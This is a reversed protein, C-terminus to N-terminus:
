RQHYNFKNEENYYEGENDSNIKYRLPFTKDYNEKNDNITRKVEKEVEDSNLGYFKTYLVRIADEYNQLTIRNNNKSIVYDKIDTIINSIDEKTLSTLSIYPKFDSLASYKDQLKNFYNNDIEKIKAVLDSIFKMEITEDYSTYISKNDIMKNMYYNVRDYFEQTNNAYFLEILSVRSYYNYRGSDLVENFTMLSHTYIDKDLVNDWTPDSIYLGDINYKPDTLNVILRAHHAPTTKIDDDIVSKLNDVQDFGRDVTVSYKISNIGLKSLLDKLLHSYGVCVMYDNNNIIKYLDRSTSKDEKNEQYKKFHKVIDYAYLFKEFPSLELAPRIMDYLMQENEKYEKVTYNNMDVKLTVNDFSETNFKFLSENFKNNDDVQIIFKLNKNIKNIENIANFINDYNKYNLEITKEVNIRKLIELQDTTIEEMIDIDLDPNILDNYTYWGIIIRNTNYNIIENFNYKLDEDVGYTRIKNIIKNNLIDFTEKDLLFKDSYSGLTVDKINKNASIEKLIDDNILSTSAINIRYKAFKIYEKLFNEVEEKNNNYYDEDIHLYGDYGEFKSLFLPHDIDTFQYSADKTVLFEKSIGIQNINYKDINELITQFDLEKGYKEENLLINKM